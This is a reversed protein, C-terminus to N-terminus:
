NLPLLKRRELESFYNVSSKFFPNETIGPFTKEFTKPFEKMKAGKKGWKEIRNFLRSTNISFMKNNIPIIQDGRLNLINFFYPNKLKIIDRARIVYIYDKYFEISEEISFEFMRIRFRIEGKRGPSIDVMEKIFKLFDSDSLLWIDTCILKEKKCVPHLKKIIKKYDLLYDLDKISGRLTSGKIRTNKKDEESLHFDYYDHKCYCTMHIGKSFPLIKMGFGDSTSWFKMKFLLEDEVEIEFSFKKNRTM